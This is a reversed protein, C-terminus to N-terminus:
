GAKLHHRACTAIQYINDGSAFVQLSRHRYDYIDESCGFLTGDKQATFTLHIGCTPGAGTVSPGGCNQKEMNGLNGLAGVSQCFFSSCSPPRRELSELPNTSLRVLQQVGSADQSLKAQRSLFRHHVDADRCVHTKNTFPEVQRLLMHTLEPTVRPQKGGVSLIQKYSQGSSRCWVVTDM